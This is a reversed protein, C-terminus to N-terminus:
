KWISSYTYMSVLEKMGKTHLTQLPANPFILATLVMEGDNIFIEMSSRDIFIRLNKVTVWQPLLTHQLTPFLDSFSVIGAKSRDFFLMGGKKYLRVEEKKENSFLLEFDAANAELSIELADAPLEIQHGKVQQHAQRLTYLEKVPKSYLTYGAPSKHLQLERPLTMASRWSTTPVQQAYAWNSMWGIFLRRGDSSPIGSWTVGAYNDTGLDLWKPTFSEAKFHQGDFHGIFYQTGSGGQPAGPNVSVLLVWKEEGEPTQISFLDPCEWVGAYAAGEPHFNSRFTWEKLNPSTYLMVKDKAALVMVWHGSAEHWFVKPDRFDKIGPNSLVPNGEYKRWTKGSDISYALGQRQFDIGGAKEGEMSHYTFLAVLAPQNNKGLGSSNHWDVVASGSFIYGLSDPELAIPLHKWQVLNVSTAHGWHMPGWTNGFPHYQYFLHYEGNYYVMGNPDNMWNARPSFHYQPRFPESYWDAEKQPQTTGNKWPCFIMCIIFLAALCHKLFPKM